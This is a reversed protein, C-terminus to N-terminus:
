CPLPRLRERSKTKAFMPLIVGWPTDEPQGSPKFGLKRYGAIARANNPHTDTAVVPAGEEFLTRVRADIFVSGHGVGVMEPDGIYQAIGRSGKPLHAFHRDDWGHAAYDQFFRSLGKM